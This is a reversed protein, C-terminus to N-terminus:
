HSPPAARDKLLGAQLEQRIFRVLGNIQEPTLKKEFAPMGDGGKAIQRAFQAETHTLGHGTKFSPVKLTGGEDFEITGGEGNEQHCRACVAKYTSRAAALDDSPAAATPKAASPTSTTNADNSNGNSVAKDNTSACAVAFMTIVSIFLALKLHKM